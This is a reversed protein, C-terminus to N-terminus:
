LKGRKNSRRRVLRAFKRRELKKAARTAADQSAELHQLERRLKRYRELRSEDLSGNGLAERIRCGPESLHGCDSFRCGEALHEIDAFSKGLSSGDAWVQIERMGPTDIMMGGGPLLVLERFTTTHRGKSDAQRVSNTELRRYGLLSNILTSKGVGSSGLLVCTKGERVYGKLQELGTGETASLVLIPAGMAVPELQALCADMNDCVDAKNLLIVGTAGSDRSLLLYREIRNPNFDDDLGSVIFATDINTAIVQEDVTEGAEKRSFKSKRDLLREIGVENSGNEAVPQTLVWDGVAPYDARSLAQERFSGPLRGVLKGRNGYLHYRNTDRRYVRAPMLDHTEISQRAFFDDWGLAILCDTATIVMAQIKPWLCPPTLAQRLPEAVPHKAM